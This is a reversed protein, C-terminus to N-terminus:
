FAWGLSMLLRPAVGRNAYIRAPFQQDPISKSTWMYQVGGGLSLAVREALLIQYGADAVLGLDLFPTKTGDQATADFSGVLVSPGVFFGRPGGEGAYYRYGLEGGFGTFKQEPLQTPNGADDFVYIPATTTSVYFPSLVLAHHDLPVVIVNASLKDIAVLPLPNWEISVIRRPPTPDRVVVDVGEKAVEAQGPGGVVLEPEAFAAEERALFTALASVIFLISLM